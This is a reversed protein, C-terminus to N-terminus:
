KQVPLLIIQETATKAAVFKSGYTPNEVTAQRKSHWDTPHIVFHLIARVFRGIIADHLLNAGLFTTTIM